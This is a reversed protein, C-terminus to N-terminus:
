VHIRRSRSERTHGFFVYHFIDKRALDFRRRCNTGGGNAQCTAQNNESLQDGNAAEWSDRVAQLGFKWAITGPYDPFQCVRPDDPVDNNVCAVEKV